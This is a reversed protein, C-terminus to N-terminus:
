QIRQKSISEVNAVNFLQVQNFLVIRKNSKMFFILCNLVSIVVLAYEFYEYNCSDQILLNSKFKQSEWQQFKIYLLSLNLIVVITTRFQVLNFALEQSKISIQMWINPILSLSESQSTRKKLKFPTKNIQDPISM